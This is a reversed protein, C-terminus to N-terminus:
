MVTDFAESLCEQPHKKLFINQFIKEDKQICEVYRLAGNFLTAMFIGLFGPIFSLRDEVFFPLIEDPKTIYGAALPDCSVYVAYVVMGAIWSLSFFVIIVPINSM